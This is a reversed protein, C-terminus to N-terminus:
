ANGIGLDQMFKQLEPPYSNTATKDATETTGTNTTSLVSGTNGTNGVGSVGSCM